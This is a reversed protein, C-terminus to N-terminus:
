GTVFGNVVDFKMQNLLNLDVLEPRMADLRTIHHNITGSQVMVKAANHPLGNSPQDVGQDQVEGRKVWGLVRFQCINNIYNTISELAHFFRDEVEYDEFNIARTGAPLPATMIFKEFFWKSQFVTNFTTGDQLTIRVEVAIVVNGTHNQIQYCACKGISEMQRDCLNGGCKTNRVQFSLVSVSCDNLIFGNIDTGETIIHKMPLNFKSQIAIAPRQPSLIPTMSNALFRDTGPPNVLLIM